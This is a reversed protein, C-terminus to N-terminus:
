NLQWISGALWTAFCSWALYPLLLAAAMRSHHSFRVITVMILPLLVLIWGVGLLPSRLGFFLGTWALNVALQLAFWGLAPRVNQEARRCWVLWASVAMLIYLVPWVVGFSWPPPTLAPKALAGYWAMTDGRMPLSSAWSLLLIGVIWAVLVFMERRTARM